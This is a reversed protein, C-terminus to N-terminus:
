ARVVLTNAARDGLRQHRPSTLMVVFGLLYAVPLGDVIRLLTRAVIAGATPRKGSEGVVRIGLARKGPTQGWTAECVGYYAFQIALWALLGADRLHFSLNGHGNKAGGTIASLVLFLAFLVVFDVLAAGIRRGVVDTRDDVSAPPPGAGTPPEWSAQPREPATESM